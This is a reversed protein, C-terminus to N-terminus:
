LEFGQVVTTALTGEFTPKLATMLIVIRDGQPSLKVERISYDLVWDRFNDLSDLSRRQGNYLVELQMAARYSSAKGDSIRKQRLHLQLPTNTKPLSGTITESGDETRSRSRVLVVDGSVPSTLNLDKRLKWTRKLLDREVTALSLNANPESYDTQVCGDQVCANSDLNIVQLSLSPVGAGTDRSSELYVYYNGNPSFGAM